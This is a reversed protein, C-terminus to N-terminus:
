QQSLYKNLHRAMMMEKVICMKRGWNPLVILYHAQTLEKMQKVKSIFEWIYIDNKVAHIQAIEKTSALIYIM